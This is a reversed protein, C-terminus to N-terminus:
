MRLAKDIAEGAGTNPELAAIARKATATSIVVPGTHKPDAPLANDIEKATKNRM